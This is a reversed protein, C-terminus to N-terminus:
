EACRVLGAGGSGSRTLRAPRHSRGCHTLLFRQGSKGNVESFLSSFPLDVRDQAPILLNSLDNIDQHTPPLIIRDKGAFGTHAFGCDDFPKGLPDRRAINRRSEFPDTQPGQIKAQQLGARAHFPLELISQALHNIFNLRRRFWDNQEDVLRVRQDPRSTRSSLTIGCVQEFGSKGPASQAGDRSSRPRFILFIEFFIGRERAAELHNLHILRGLFFCDQHDTAECGYQFLM